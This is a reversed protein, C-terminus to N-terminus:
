KEAPFAAVIAESVLRVMTKEEKIAAQKLAKHNAKPIAGRIDIEAGVSPRGLKKAAKKSRKRTSM